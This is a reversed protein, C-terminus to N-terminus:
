PYILAAVARRGESILVAYTRCAAVTTMTELSLGAQAAAGILEIAPFQHTRGCGLLLVEPRYHDCLHQIDAATLESLTQVPWLDCHDPALILSQRYSQDNIRLEQDTIATVRYRADGTMLNIQM